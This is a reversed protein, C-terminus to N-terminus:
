EKFWIGYGLIAFFFLSSISHMLLLLSAFFLSLLSFLDFSCHSFLFLSVQLKKHFDTPSIRCEEVDKELKMMEDTYHLPRNPIAYVCRQM